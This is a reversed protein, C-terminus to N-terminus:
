PKPRDPSCSRVIEVADRINYEVFSPHGVYYSLAENCRQEFADADILGASALETIDMRDNDALRGVKSVALDTPSIIKIQIRGIKDAEIAEDKWDPHMLALVETYNNDLRVLERAGNHEYFMVPPNPIFLRHSFAADLDGSVRYQTYIHVAAGGVLFADVVGDFKEPITKADLERLINTVAEMFPTNPLRLAM